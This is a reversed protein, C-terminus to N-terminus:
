RSARRARRAAKNAARRRAHVAAPIHGHGMGVAATTPEEAATAQRRLVATLEDRIAPLDESRAHQIRETLAKGWEIARVAGAPDAAVRRPDVLQALVQRELELVEAALGTFQDGSGTAEGLTPVVRVGELADAGLTRRLAPFLPEAAPAVVVIRVLRARRVRVTSSPDSGPGGNIYAGPYLPGQYEVAGIVCPLEWHLETGQQAFTVMEDLDQVVNIGCTCGAGPAPDAHQSCPGATNWGRASWDGWGFLSVLRGADTAVWARYGISPGPSADEHQSM